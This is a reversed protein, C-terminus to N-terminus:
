LILIRGSEDKKGEANQRARYRLIVLGGVPWLGVMGPEPVSSSTGSGLPGLIGFDSNHDVVAWVYYKGDSGTDVGWSNLGYSPDYAGNIFYSLASGSAPATIGGYTTNGYIANTWVGNDLWGLYLSLPDIGGLSNPDYSMELVFPTTGNNPTTVNVVDSYLSVASPASYSSSALPTISIQGTTSPTVTVQSPQAGGTTGSLTGNAAVTASLSQSLKFVTGYGSGGYSTTGYLTGGIDIVGGEPYAGNAYNFAALTTPTGGTIPVSFVSGWDAWVDPHGVTTGYLTGGVDILSGSPYKHTFTALTTITGGSIPMSYVTGYNNAGGDVTTGYLIGGVDILGGYPGSGNVGTFTALTTVTGGSIPVSFVTGRNNAGGLDTTGYLTGNVDILNAMPGLGNAGTFTALTTIAGGGIPVSYVTGYDNAGGGKTTGYLIGGVNLLGGYPGTGNAGTFQALTTPIGGSVPVSFVTGKIVTGDDGIDGGGSTTGYLIGGVNILGAYPAYENPSNFSAVTTITGGSVPVSFVTGYGPNPGGDVTTGYLVGGVDILSCYPSDGNAWNFTALTSMIYEARATQKGFGGLMGAVLAVLVLKSIVKARHLIM